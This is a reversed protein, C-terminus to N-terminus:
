LSIMMVDQVSEFGGQFERKPTQFPFIQRMMLSWIGQAEITDSVRSQQRKGGVCQTATQALAQGQSEMTDDEEDDSIPDLTDKLLGADKEEQIAEIEQHSLYEKQLALDESEIDFKTTFKYM